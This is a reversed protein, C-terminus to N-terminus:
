VVRFRIHEISSRKKNKIKGKIFRRFSSVSVNLYNSAEKISNFKIWRRNVLVEVMKGKQLFNQKEKPGLIILNLYNCNSERKNKHYIKSGKVWTRSFSMAVLKKVAYRKHDIVVSLFKENRNNRIREYMKSPVREFFMSKHGEPTLNKKNYKEVYGRSNVYYHFYKTEKFFVRYHEWFTKKHEELQKLTMSPKDEQQKFLMDILEQFNTM